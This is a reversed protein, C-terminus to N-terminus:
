SVQYPTVHSQGEADAIRRSAIATEAEVRRQNRTIVAALEDIELQQIRLRSELEESKEALRENEKQLLGDAWQKLYRKM